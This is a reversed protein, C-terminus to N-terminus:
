NNESKDGPPTGTLIYELKDALASYGIDAQESTLEGETVAKDLEARLTDLIASRLADISVNRSEALTKLGGEHLHRDFEQRSAGLLQAGADFAADTAERFAQADGLVEAKNGHGFDFPVAIMEGLTMGSIKTKALGADAAELKGDQVAQDITSGIATQLAANLRAQDVGLEAAFSQEFLQAYRQIDEKSIDTADKNADQEALDATVGAMTVASQTSGNTSNSARAFGGYGTFLAGLVGGFVVLGLVVITVKLRTVNM